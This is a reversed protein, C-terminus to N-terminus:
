QRAGRRSGSRFSFGHWAGRGLSVAEGEPWLVAEGGPRHAEQEGGAPAEGEAGARRDRDPRAGGHADRRGLFAAELAREGVGLDTELDVVEPELLAGREKALDVQLDRSM